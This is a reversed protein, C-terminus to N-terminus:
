LIFQRAGRNLVSSGLKMMAARGLRSQRGPKKVKEETGVRERAVLGTM